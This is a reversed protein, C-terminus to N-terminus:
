FDYTAAVGRRLLAHLLDPYSHVGVSLSGSYSSSATTMVVANIQRRIKHVADVLIYRHRRSTSLRSLGSVIM